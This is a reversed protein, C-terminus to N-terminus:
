RRSGSRRHPARGSLNGLPRQWAAPMPASVRLITSDPLPIELEAAHLYLRPSALQHIRQNFTTSGYKKDGAIPFGAHRTHARIQHKRGTILEAQVLTATGGFRRRPAFRTLSPLGHEAVIVSQETRHLPARVEALEEPWDGRVLALYRRKLSDEERLVRQLHRLMSPTKAVMLLGSTDRDLRHALELDPQDPRLQRLAEIVGGSVGTGVHVAIDAPKDLVLLADDEHIVTQDITRLLSVPLPPPPIADPLRIQPLRLLDGAELRYNPQAKKDNVRVKGKRLLRFLLSAPVGKLEARLYKDLRRGAHEAPVEVERDTRTHKNDTM